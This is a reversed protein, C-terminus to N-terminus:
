PVSEDGPSPPAVRKVVVVTTDDPLEERGLHRRWDALLLDLIGSASAHAAGRLVERPRDYGYLEEHANRSEFLGDSCFVLAGGLPLRFAHDRYEQPPGKGLALRGPLAIETVEEDEGPTLLLPFPHGANSLLVEGTAPDLRVLALSTFNRATGGRRIVRDVRRLVEAPTKEPSILSTLAATTM